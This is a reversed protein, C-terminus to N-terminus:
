QQPPPPHVNINKKEGIYIHFPPLLLPSLTVNLTEPFTKKMTSLSPLPSLIPDSNIRKMNYWGTLM